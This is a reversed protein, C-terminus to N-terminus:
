PHHRSQRGKKKLEAHYKRRIQALDASPRPYKLNMGELHEVVLRAIALNRFWKHDSPIIYWPARARSCRQIADSYASMYQRWFPRQSYDADSIKWHKAPDALREGFRKLQEDPSIHLYFKIIQVGSAALDKEFHNILKYRHSWVERPVLNQVRAILVDEYHSRNFIVVEGRAPAAKHIRWLFDHRLEEASPQKFGVVRCGQPNMAGLVHNITGDKGAADMGQLCILLSKSHDAYLLEQLTWLRQLYHKTEAATSAADTYRGTFDSDIQSLRVRQGPRVRFHRVFNM